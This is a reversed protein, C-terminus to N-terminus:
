KKIMSGSVDLAFDNARRPKPLCRWPRVRHKHIWSVTAACLKTILFTGVAFLMLSMKVVAVSLRHTENFHRRGLQVFLKSSSIDGRLATQRLLLLKNCVGCTWVRETSTLQRERMESATWSWVNPFSSLWRACNRSMQRLVFVESLFSPIAIAIEHVIVESPWRRRSGHKRASTSRSPLARRCGRSRPRSNKFTSIWCHLLLRDKSVVGQFKRCCSECRCLLLKFAFHLPDLTREIEIGSLPRSHCLIARTTHPGCTDAFQFLHRRM